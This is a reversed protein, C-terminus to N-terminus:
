DCGMKSSTSSVHCGFEDCSAIGLTARRQQRAVDRKAHLSAHLATRHFYSVVNFAVCLVWRYWQTSGTHQELRRWERRWWSFRSLSFSVDCTLVHDVQMCSRRERALPQCYIFSRRTSHVAASMPLLLLSWRSFRTERWTRARERSTFYVFLDDGDRFPCDILFLRPFIDHRRRKLVSFFFLKSSAHLTTTFKFRKDYSHFM